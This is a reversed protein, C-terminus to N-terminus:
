FRGGISFVRTAPAEDEEDHALVAIDIIQAALLIIAASGIGGVGSLVPPGGDSHSKAGNIAAFGVLAAGLRLGFSGAMRGYNKYELHFLPTGLITLGLGSIAAAPSEGLAGGIALAWSAGDTAIMGAGYWEARAERAPLALAFSVALALTIAPRCIPMAVTSLNM